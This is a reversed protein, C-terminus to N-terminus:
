RGCGNSGVEVEANLPGAETQAEVTLSKLRRCDAPSLSVDFRRTGGAL